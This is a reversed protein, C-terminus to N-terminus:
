DRYSNSGKIVDIWGQTQKSVDGLTHDKDQAEKKRSRKPTSSSAPKEKHALTRVPTHTAYENVAAVILAATVAGQGNSDTSCVPFGDADLILTPQVKALKWPTRSPNIM